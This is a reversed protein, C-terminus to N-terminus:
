SRRVKDQVLAISDAKLNYLDNSAIYLAPPLAILDFAPDTRAQEDCLLFQM